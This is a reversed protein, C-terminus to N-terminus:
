FHLNLLGSLFGNFGNLLFATVITLLLALLRAEASFPAASVETVEVEQERFFLWSVQEQLALLEPQNGVQPLTQNVGQRVNARNRRLENLRAARWRAIGQRFPLDILLVYPLILAGAYILARATLIPLVPWLATDGSHLISTTLLAALFLTIT